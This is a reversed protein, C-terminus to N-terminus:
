RSSTIYDILLSVGHLHWGRGAVLVSRKRREADAHRIINGPQSRGAVQVFGGAPNFRQEGPVAQGRGAALGQARQTFLHAALFIVKGQGPGLGEGHQPGFYGVKGILLEVRKDGVPPDVPTELVAFRAVM